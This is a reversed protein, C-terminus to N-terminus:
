EFDEGPSIRDLLEALGVMQLGQESFKPYFKMLVSLVAENKVHGIMIAFGEARAIELAKGFQEEIAEPTPVNDLFISRALHPVDYLEAISGAVSRSTTLSDLFFKDKQRLYGMVAGVVRRNSTVKSGMHNNMGVAGPVSAFAAAMLNKIEGDNHRALIAGPGPDNGNVAEMPFHLIVEKGAQRAKRAVEGSQPLHPLVAITLKGPFRLFEDLHPVDYGADDIVLSLRASRQPPREELPAAPVQEAPDTKDPGPEASRELRQPKADRGRPLLQVIVALLITISALLLVVARQRSKQLHRKKM